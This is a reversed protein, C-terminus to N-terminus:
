RERCIGIESHTITLGAVLFIGADQFILEAITRLTGRPKSKRGIHEDAAIIKIAAPAARFCYESLTRDFLRVVLLLKEPTRM